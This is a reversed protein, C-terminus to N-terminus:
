FVDGLLINELVGGRVIIEDDLLVGTICKWVGIGEAITGGSESAGRGDGNGM